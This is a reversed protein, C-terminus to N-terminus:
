RRSRAFTTDVGGLVIGAGLGALHATNAVRGGVVFDLIGTLGLALSLFLLVILERPVPVARGPQLMNWLWIYGGLGYLAGSLGGFLNSGSVTYQCYSSFAGTGLLVFALRVGGRCQEMPVGFLWLMLGNFATHMLGFHLLMPTVWRWYEGGGFVAPSRFDPFLLFQWLRGGPDMGVLLGGFLGGALFLFTVPSRRLLEAM